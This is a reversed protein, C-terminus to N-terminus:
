LNKYIEDYCDTFKNYLILNDKKPKQGKSPLTLVKQCMKVMGTTIKPIELQCEYNFLLWLRLFHYTHITLKNANNIIDFLKHTHNKNKILKNLPIKLIRYKDPEKNM